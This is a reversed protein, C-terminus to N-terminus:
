VKTLIRDYLICITSLMQIGRFDSPVKLNGRKPIAFILSCALKLPYSLYFIGNLLKISMPLFHSIMLQLIPLTFDYGGKKCNIERGGIPYDLTPIYVETTLEEIKSKELQDEMSYINQFHAKLDSINPHTEIKKNNFGGKWDVCKWLEKSDKNNILKYWKKSENELITKNVMKSALKYEDLSKSIDILNGNPLCNCYIKFKENAINMDEYNNPTIPRNKKTQACHHMNGVCKNIKINIKHEQLTITIKRNLTDNNQIIYDQSFETNNYRSVKKDEPSYEYNLNEARILIEASSITTVM